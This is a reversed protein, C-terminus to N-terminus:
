KPDTARWGERQRIRDVYARVAPYPSWEFKSAALGVLDAGLCCDVLSFSAGLIWDTGTLRRSLVEIPRELEKRGRALADNDIPIGMKPAISGFFWLAGVSEALHRAEFFMWRLADARLRRQEPWLRGEREGLYALIANSEWLVFGDDDLVPLKQMPNIKTFA